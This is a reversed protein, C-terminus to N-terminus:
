QQKKCDIYYKDMMQTSRKLVEDSFECENLKQELKRAEYLIEDMQEVTLILDHEQNMFNFFEQYTKAIQQLPTKM